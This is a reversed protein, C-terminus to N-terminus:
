ECSPGHVRCQVPHSPVTPSNLPSDSSSARCFSTAFGITLRRAKEVTDDQSGDDILVIKLESGQAAVSRLTQEILDAENRAPIVVTVDSLSEDTGPHAADLTERTSWIRWPLLAFGLWSFGSLATIFILVTEM